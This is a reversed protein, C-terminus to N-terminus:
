DASCLQQQLAGLLLPAPNACSPACRGRAAHAYDIRLDTRVDVFPSIYHLIESGYVVSIYSKLVQAAPRSELKM